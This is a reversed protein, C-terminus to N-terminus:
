EIVFKSLESLKRDLKIEKKNIDYKMISLLFHIFYSIINISEGNTNFELPFWNPMIYRFMSVFSTAVLIGGLFYIISQDSKISRKPANAFIITSYIFAPLFIIILSLINNDNLFM